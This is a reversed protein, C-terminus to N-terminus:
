RFRRFRLFDKRKSNVSIEVIHQVACLQFIFEWLGKSKEFIRREKATGCCFVRLPSRFCDQLVM